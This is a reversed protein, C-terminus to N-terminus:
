EGGEVNGEVSIYITGAVTDARFALAVGYTPYFTVIDGAGIFQEVETITQPVGMVAIQAPTYRQNILTLYIPNLSIFRIWTDQTATIMVTRAFCQGRPAITGSAYEGFNPWRFNSGTLPDNRANYGFPYYVTGPVGATAEILLLALEQAEPIYPPVPIAVFLVTAASHSDRYSYHDAMLRSEWASSPGAFVSM